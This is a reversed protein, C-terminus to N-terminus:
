VKSKFNKLVGPSQKVQDSEPVGQVFELSNQHVSIFCSLILVPLDTKNIDKRPQLINLESKLFVVM